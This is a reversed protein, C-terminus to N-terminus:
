SRRAPLWAALMRIGSWDGQMSAFAADVEASLREAALRAQELGLLSVLNAKGQAADKAATKGLEGTTGSVDLIDDTLQFLMGLDDGSRSVQPLLDSARGSALLGLELSVRIMASTKGTIMRRVWELDPESPPNMDMYQGGVLFSPGSASALRAAMASLTAPPLPSRLLEIFAEVLLRDGALVAQREGAVAHLSPRGRRIDDDDLAPLDDHILSYTHIMEVAVASSRARAPDGGCARCSSLVLFPRVRKGGGELSYSALSPLRSHADSHMYLERFGEEVWGAAEALLAPLMGADSGSM